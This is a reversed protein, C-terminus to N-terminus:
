LAAAPGVRRGSPGEQVTSRGAVAGCPRARGWPQRLLRPLWDRDRMVYAEPSPPLLKSWSCKRLTFRALERAMNKSIYTSIITFKQSSADLLWLLGSPVARLDALLLPALIVLSLLGMRLRVSLRKVDDLARGLMTEYVLELVGLSRRRCLMAAIWSGVRSMLLEVSAYGLAAVEATLVSLFLVRGFPSNAAGVKGDVAVGWGVVSYKLWAAEQEHWTLGHRSSM